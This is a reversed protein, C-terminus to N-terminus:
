GHIIKGGGRITGSSTTTPLVMPFLCSDNAIESFGLQAWDFVEMKNAVVTPLTARPRTATFGFNGATGTSASLQVSNIGKINKGSTTTPRLIDLGIMHGIRITGGVAQVSLNGTTDDNYTVNITANAATAGAGGAGYPTVAVNAEGPNLAAGGNVLKVRGSQVGGVNVMNYSNAAVQKSIYATRTTSDGAFYATAQIQQGSQSTNGVFRKNIPRGM